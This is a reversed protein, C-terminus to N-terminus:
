DKDIAGLEDNAFFYFSSEENQIGPKRFKKGGRKGGKEIM